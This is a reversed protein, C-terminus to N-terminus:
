KCAGDQYIVRCNRKFNDLPIKLEFGDPIGVPSAVILCAGEDTLDRVTCDLVSLNRNFIIKGVKLTRARRKKRREEMTGGHPGKALAAIPWEVDQEVAMLFGAPIPTIIAFASLGIPALGSRRGM